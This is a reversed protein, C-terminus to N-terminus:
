KLCVASQDASSDDLAATANTSDLTMTACKPDSKLTTATIRVCSSIGSGCAAAALSCASSASQDGSYTKFVDGLSSAYSSKSAFWREQAQMAAGLASRCESRQGRRVVEQYTPYAIAALIGVIAIAILIEILTFGFEREARRM